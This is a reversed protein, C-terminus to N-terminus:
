GRIWSGLRMRGGREGRARPESGSVGRGSAGATKAQAGGHGRHQGAQGERNAAGGVPHIRPRAARGGAGVPEQLGRPGHVARGRGAPILTPPPFHPRPSRGLNSTQLVAYPQPQPAGLSAGPVTSVGGVGKATHAGTEGGAPERPLARLHFPDAPGLRWPDCEWRGGGPRRTWSRTQWRSRRSAWGCRWSSRLTSRGAREAAIPSRPLYRPLYRALHASCSPCGPNGAAAPNAIWV